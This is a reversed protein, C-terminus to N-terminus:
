SGAWTMLKSHYARSIVSNLPKWRGLGHHYCSQDDKWDPPMSLNGAQDHRAAADSGHSVRLHQCTICEDHLKVREQLPNQCSYVAATYKITKICCQADNPNVAAIGLQTSSHVAVFAVDRLSNEATTINTQICSLMATLCLSLETIHSFVYYTHVNSFYSIVSSFVANCIPESIHYLTSFVASCITGYNLKSHFKTTM